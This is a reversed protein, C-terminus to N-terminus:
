HVENDSKKEKNIQKPRLIKRPKKKRQKQRPKKM